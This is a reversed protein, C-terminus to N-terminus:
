RLSRSPPTSTPLCGTTGSLCRTLPLSRAARISSAFIRQSAGRSGSASGTGPVRRAEPATAWALAAEATVWQLGRDELYGVFQMLLHGQMGLKFGLARRMALYDEAAARLASVLDGRAV